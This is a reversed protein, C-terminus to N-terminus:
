CYVSPHFYAEKYWTRNQTSTHTHESTKGRIEEDFYSFSRRKAKKTEQDDGDFRTLKSASAAM